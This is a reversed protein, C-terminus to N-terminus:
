FNGSNLYYVDTGTILVLVIYIKTLNNKFTRIIKIFFIFIVLSRLVDSKFFISNGSNTGSETIYFFFNNGGM